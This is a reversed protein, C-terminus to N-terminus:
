GHSHSHWKHIGIHLQEDLCAVPSADVCHYTRSSFMSFVNMSFMDNSVEDLTPHSRLDWDLIVNLRVFDGHLANTRVLETFHAGAM